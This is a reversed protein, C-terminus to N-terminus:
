KCFDVVNGTMEGISDIAVLEPYREQVYNFSDPPKLRAIQPKAAILNGSLMFTNFLCRPLGNRAEYQRQAKSIKQALAVTQDPHTKQDGYVIIDSVMAIKCAQIQFNRVSFGDKPDCEIFTPSDRSAPALLEEPAIAGKLKSTLLNGGTKVITLSRLCRPVKRVSKRRSSFFALQIQNEAHLGHMWPFVQEPNPLPQTALHELAEAM